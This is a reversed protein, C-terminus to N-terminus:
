EYPYEMAPSQDLMQESMGAAGLPLMYKPFGKSLISARVEPTLRVAPLNTSVSGGAHIFADAIPGIFAHNSVKNLFEPSGYEYQGMLNDMFNQIDVVTSNAYGRPVGIDELHRRYDSPNAVIDDYLMLYDEKPAELIDTALLKAMPMPFEKIDKGDTAVSTYFSEDNVGHEKLDKRIQNPIYKDYMRSIAENKVGGARSEQISAPTWTFLDANREAAELLARRIALNKWADGKFPGDPAADSLHFDEFHRYRDGTDAPASQQAAKLSKYGKKQGAQHRNSQIEDLNFMNSGDELDRLNYRLWAINNKGGPVDTFHAADDALPEAWPSHLILEEYADDPAGKLYLNSDGARSNPAYRPAMLEDIDDISMDTADLQNYADVDMLMPDSTLRTERIPADGLVRFQEMAEEKTMPREAPYNANQIARQEFNQLEEQKVGRNRLYNAWEEPKAQKISSGEIEKALKSFLKTLASM